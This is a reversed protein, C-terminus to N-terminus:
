IYFDQKPTTAVEVFFQAVKQTVAKFYKEGKEASAQSPDGVGTDATVQMWKREAWAWGEQMAKFRFKKAKGDGAESLPRVLPPRLYMMISTEM